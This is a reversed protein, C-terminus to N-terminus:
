KLTPEARAEDGDTLRENNLRKCLNEELRLAFDSKAAVKRFRYNLSFGKFEKYLM